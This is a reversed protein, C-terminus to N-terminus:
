KTWIPHDGGGKTIPTVNGGNTDMMYIDTVGNRTSAFAIWTGEPSWTPSFDNTQTQSVRRVGTGDANMLYIQSHGDRNSTFAIRKGDPSWAPAGDDAPNNTLNAGPGGDSYMSYLDNKTNATNYGVVLMGTKSWSLGGRFQEGSPNSRIQKAPTTRDANVVFVSWGQQNGSLKIYALQKGDPSWTPSSIGGGPDSSDLSTTENTQFNIMRLINEGGPSITWVYV